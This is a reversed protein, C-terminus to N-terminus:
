LDTSREGLDSRGGGLLRILCNYTLDYVTHYTFDVGAERMAEKQKETVAAYPYANEQPGRTGSFRSLVPAASRGALCLRSLVNRPFKM